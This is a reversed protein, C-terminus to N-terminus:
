GSYNTMLALLWTNLGSLLEYQQTYFMMWCSFKSYIRLCLHLSGLRLSELFPAHYLCLLPYPLFPFFVMGWFLWNAFGFYFPFPLLWAHHRAGAMGNHLFGFSVSQLNLTLNSQEALGQLCCSILSCCNSPLLLAQQSLKLVQAQDGAGHHCTHLGTSPSLSLLVNLRDWQGALRALEAFSEKEFILHFVTSFPIQLQSNAGLQTCMHSCVCMCTYDCMCKWACIDCVLIYM